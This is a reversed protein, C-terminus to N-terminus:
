QKDYVATSSKEKGSPDKWQTTLVRTKGDPSFEVAGTVTEQGGKKNVLRYHRSDVKKMSRTDSGTDGTVPYDKGDFTGTWESHMPKGSGDNGDTVCKYSDGVATYTVSTNKSAGAAIKSKKENLKWTGENADAAHGLALASLCFMVIFIMSRKAM